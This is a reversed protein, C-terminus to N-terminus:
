NFQINKVLNVTKTTGPSYYDIIITRFRSATRETETGPRDRPVAKTDSWEQSKERDPSKVPFLRLRSDEGSKQVCGDPEEPKDGKYSGAKRELTKYQYKVEKQIPFM